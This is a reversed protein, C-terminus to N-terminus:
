NVGFTAVYCQGAAPWNVGYTIQGQLAEGGPSLINVRNTGGKETGITGSDDVPTFAATTGAAAELTNFFLWNAVTSNAHGTVTTVGGSVTCDVTLSLPGAQLLAAGTQGATLVFLGHKLASAPVFAGPPSGGVTNANAASVATLATTASTAQTALIANTASTATDARKASPVKGLKKLNVQTGVITHNRLRNGSLSRKAILSDGKVLAGAAIATGSAAVILAAVAVVM